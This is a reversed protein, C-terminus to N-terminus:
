VAVADRGLEIRARFHAEGVKADLLLLRIRKHIVDHPFDRFDGGARDEVETAILHVLERWLLVRGEHLARLLDHVIVSLDHHSIPLADHLSLTFTAPSSPVRYLSCSP